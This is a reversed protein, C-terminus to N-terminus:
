PQSLVLTVNSGGIRINVDDFEEIFIPECPLDETHETLCFLMCMRQRGRNKREMKGVISYLTFDVFEGEIGIWTGM